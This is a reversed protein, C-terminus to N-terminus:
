PGKELDFLKNKQGERTRSLSLYYYFKILRKKGYFVVRVDWPPKKGRRSWLTM